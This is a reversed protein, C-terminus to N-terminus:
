FSTPTAVAGHPYVLLMKIIHGSWWKVSWRGVKLWTESSNNDHIVICSDPFFFWSWHFFLPLLRHTKLVPPKLCLSKSQFFQSYCAILQFPCCHDWFYPKNWPVFIFLSCHAHDPTVTLRLECGCARMGEHLIVTPSVPYHSIAM